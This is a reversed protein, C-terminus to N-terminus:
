NGDWHRRKDTHSPWIPWQSQGPSEFIGQHFFFILTNQKHGELHLYTQSSHRINKVLIMALSRSFCNFPWSWPLHIPPLVCHAVDHHFLKLVCCFMQPAASDWVFWHSLCQHTWQTQLHRFFWLPARSYKTNNQWIQAVNLLWVSTICSKALVLLVHM